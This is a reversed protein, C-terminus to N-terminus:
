ASLVEICERLRAAHIIDDPTQAPETLKGTALTALPLVIMQYRSRLLRNVFKMGPDGGKIRWPNSYEDWIQM